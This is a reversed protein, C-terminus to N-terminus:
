VFFSFIFYSLSLILGKILKGAFNIQNMSNGLKPLVKLMIKDVKSISLLLYLILIFIPGLIKKKINNMFNDTNKLINLSNEKKPIPDQKPEEITEPVKIEPKSEELPPLNNSNFLDETATKIIEPTPIENQIKPPIQSTDMVYNLSEENEDNLVEEENEIEKLISNVMMSEQIDQEQQSDNKPLDSISTSKSMKYFIFIIELLYFFSNILNTNKAVLEKQKINIANEM